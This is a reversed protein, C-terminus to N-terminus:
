VKLQPYLTKLQRLQNFNGRLAGPDWSDAVGRVSGGADYYNEIDAYPDGLACVTQSDATIPRGFAYLITTLKAAAGSSVLNAVHFNRAYIGWQPFYGMVQKNM